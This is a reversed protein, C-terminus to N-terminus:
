WLLLLGILSLVAVVVIVVACIKAVTTFLVLGTIWRLLLAGIAIAAAAGLLKGPLTELVVFAVALLLVLFLTLM